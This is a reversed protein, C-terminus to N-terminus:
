LLLKLKKQYKKKLDTIDINFDEKSIDAFKVRAKLSKIATITATATHSPAIVEDGSKIGAAILSCILADTGSNLTIAYKAKTFEKIKKELIKNENGLIYKNSSIVKSLKFLIKSKYKKNNEIPSAFNIM